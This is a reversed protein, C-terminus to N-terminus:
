ASSEVENSWQRRSRRVTLLVLYYLILGLPVCLCFWGLIAHRAVSAISSAARDGIVFAGFRGLPILLALQLPSSLQNVLQLAPLNLRLIVAAAACLFTPCGFVPFVGLVLGVAVVLAVTEPPLAAASHCFRLVAGKM